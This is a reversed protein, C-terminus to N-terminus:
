LCRLVPVGCCSHSSSLHSPTDRNPRTTWVRGCPLSVWFRVGVIPNRNVNLDLACGLTSHAPCLCRLCAARPQWLLQFLTGPGIGEVLFGVILLSFFSFTHPFSQPPFRLIRGPLFSESVFLRLYIGGSPQREYGFRLLQHPRAAQWIRQWEKRVALFGVILLAFFSFTHPFSQPPFASVCGCLHM